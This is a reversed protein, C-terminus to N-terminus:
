KSAAIEMSKVSGFEAPARPQGAWFGKVCVTLYMEGRSIDNSVSLRETSLPPESREGDVSEEAEFGRKDCDEVM